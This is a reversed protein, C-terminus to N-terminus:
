PCSVGPIPAGNSDYGLASFGNPCANRARVLYSSLGPTVPGGSLDDFLTGGVNTAVCSTGNVFDPPDDSRLVDFHTM